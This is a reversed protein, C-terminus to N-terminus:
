AVVRKPSFGEGREVAAAVPPHHHCVEHIEVGDEPVASVGGAVAECKLFEIGADRMEKGFEAGVIEQADGGIVAIIGTPRAGVVGALADRHEEVGRIEFGGAM